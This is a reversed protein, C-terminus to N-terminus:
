KKQPHDMVSTNTEQKTRIISTKSYCKHQLDKYNRFVELIRRILAFNIVTLYPKNSIQIVCVYVSILNRNNLIELIQLNNNSCWFYVRYINNHHKIFYLLTIRIVDCIM